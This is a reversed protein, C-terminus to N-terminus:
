MGWEYLISSLVAMSATESRLIRSGLSVPTAGKDVLYSLEENTIGGEPGVLVLVSESQKIGTLVKKLPNATSERECCVLVHDYKQFDITKITKFATILPLYDRKSQQSAEKVILSFRELKKQEEKEEIKIISRHFHTPIIEYVGLETAKELFLEFRDKKILAQAISIKPRPKHSLHSQVVCFLASDKLLETLKAEYITGTEDVFEMSEGLRSRMVNKIHHFDNGSIVITEGNIQTNKVFYRQLNIVVIIM